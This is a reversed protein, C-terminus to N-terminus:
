NSAHKGPGQVFLRMEEATTTSLGEAYMEQQWAVVAQKQLTMELNRVPGVHKVWLEVERASIVKARGFVKAIAVISRALEDGIVSTPISWRTKGLCDTYFGLQKLQDMIEPHDSDPDVIQRLADLTRAGRVALEPLIWAVNKRTHSRYDKWGSRLEEATEAIALSRLISVKGAEEIALAALSAATASSGRELLTEADAILRAAYELAATMGAAVEAPDLAGRYVDLKKPM